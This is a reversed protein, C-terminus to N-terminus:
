IKFLKRGRLLPAARWWVRWDASSRYREADVRRLSQCKPPRRKEDGYIQVLEMESTIFPSIAPNNISLFHFLIM